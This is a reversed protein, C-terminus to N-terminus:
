LCAHKSVRNKDKTRGAAGYGSGHDARVASGLEATNASYYGFDYVTAPM